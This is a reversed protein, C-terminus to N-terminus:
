RKGTNLPSQADYVDTSIVDSYVVGGQRLTEEMVEMITISESWPLSKSEKLGDRLCRACEDAEWFMGQGWGSEPDKPIPCDVVQVEGGDEKKKIVRYQLPCYAPGMVQIEGKSGQIRISAGASNKGDADSSVRLSTLAIGHSKHQPFQLIISTTEDAGTHYKNVAAMVNPAEKQEEPQVHYLTQFVWTLAYIGLDLLAGGALEPNVMRHTDAFDIKGDDKDKGISLDAITRYVHGIAGNSILERVQISLPFYRTWVAEMFFVGKARAADVLKRAQSATVTLAKECLVNKGAELALMANQFHHSHPTAVYVIDVNPDAVLEHYSGYAKASSPAKVKTLFEGARDKSSSSAAAVVEHRVDHVNRLAPNALLDKTFVEAIWGTAMIGWRVTYPTSSAM